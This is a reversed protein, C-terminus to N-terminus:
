TKIIYNVVASPQMNNHASGSGLPATLGQYTLPQGGTDIAMTATAAGPIGTTTKGYNFAVGTDDVIGNGLSVNPLEAQILTHAEEGGTNGIANGLVSTGTGGAGVPVRRRMDPVNFTTSGDGNGWTTGIAAFLAATVGTRSVAQGQCLLYGSPAASGAFMKMEGPPAYARLLADLQGTNGPNYTIGADALATQLSTQWYELGTDIFPANPYRSINGSVVATQGNAVTVVWLGYNSADPAPTTQAGTTAATGAKVSVTVQTSRVTPQATGSNGPGAYANYPPISNNYPLVLVGTDADAISAQVLYNISQGAAGPAPFSLMAGGNFVAQKLLNTADSGISSYATADTPMQVYASGSAISATLASGSATLAFGHFIASGGITAWALRGIAIMANKNTNLIDNETPQQGGYCIVRDM